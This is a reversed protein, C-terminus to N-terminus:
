MISAYVSGILCTRLYLTQMIGGEVMSCEPTSPLVTNTGVQLLVSIGGKIPQVPPSHQDPVLRMPGHPLAEM